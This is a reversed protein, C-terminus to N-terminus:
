SKLTNYRQLYKNDQTPKGKYSLDHLAQNNVLM